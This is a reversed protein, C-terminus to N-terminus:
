SWTLQFSSAWSLVSHRVATILGALLLGRKTCSRGCHWYSLQVLCTVAAAAWYSLSESKLSTIRRLDTCASMSSPIGDSRGVSATWAFWQRESDTLLILSNLTRLDTCRWVNLHILLLQVCVSQYYFCWLSCWLVFILKTRVRVDHALYCCPLLLIHTTVRVLLIM